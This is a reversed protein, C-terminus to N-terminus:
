HINIHSFSLGKTKYLRKVGVGEGGMVSRGERGVIRGKEKQIKFANKGIKNSHQLYICDPHFFICIPGVVNM